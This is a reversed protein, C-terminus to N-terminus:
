TVEPIPNGEADYGNMLNSGVLYVEDYRPPPNLSQTPQVPKSETLSLLRKHLRCERMRERNKAKSLPM